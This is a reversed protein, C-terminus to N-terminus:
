PCCLPTIMVDSDLRDWSHWRIILIDSQKYFEILLLVDMLVYCAFRNCSQLGANVYESVTQFTMLSRANRTSSLSSCWFLSKLLSAWSHGSPRWTAECVFCQPWSLAALLILPMASMIELILCSTLTLSQCSQTTTRTASSFADPPTTLRRCPSKLPHNPAIHNLNDHNQVKHTLLIWVFWIFNTRM